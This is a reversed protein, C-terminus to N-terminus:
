KEIWQWLHADREAIEETQWDYPKPENPDRVVLHLIPYKPVIVLEPPRRRIRIVIEGLLSPSPKELQSSTGSSGSPTM